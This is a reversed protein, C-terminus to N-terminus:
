QVVIGIQLTAAGSTVTVTGSAPPGTSTTVSLTISGSAPISGSTPSVTIWPRNDTVSFPKAGSGCGSVSVVVPKTGPGFYSLSSPSASLSVLCPTATPVPTRTPAPTATATPTRTPPIPTPTPTSPEATAVLAGPNGGGPPGAPPNQPNTLPPQPPTTPDGGGPVLGPEPESEANVPTSEITATATPTRTATPAITPSAAVVAQDDGSADDGTFFAVATITGILFLVAALGLAALVKKKGGGDEHEDPAPVPAGIPTVPPAEDNTIATSSPPSTTQPTLNTSAVGDATGDPHPEAAPGRYSAADTPSTTGGDVGPEAGTHSAAESGSAGGSGGATWATQLNAFIAERIGGAPQLIGFGAFIAFPSALKARRERCQACGGAHREIVRRVEPSMEALELRTLEGDLEFCEHRGLRLLALAGVADELAKKMRNVMVYANNKTVGLVDAIEASDLGDRLTLHLVSYSKPDLGKAAEWVLSAMSASEAAQEPDSFRDPDIVDFQYTDGDDDQGELSQSRSARELRNLATNRAITFLWSKFSAGQSLSALSNMAKLFTDQTLDAAEAQDRVMRALFDYVRDFYREYLEAFAAEDGTRAREVLAADDIM